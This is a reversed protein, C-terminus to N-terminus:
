SFSWKPHDELGYTGNPRLGCAFDFADWTARRRERASWFGMVRVGAWPRAMVSREFYTEWAICRIARCSGGVM